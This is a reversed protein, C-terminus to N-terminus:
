LIRNKEQQEIELSFGNLLSTINKFILEKPTYGDKRGSGVISFGDPVDDDDQGVEEPKAKVQTKLPSLRGLVKLSIYRYPTREGESLRKVLVKIDKKDNRILYRFDDNTKKYAMLLRDASAKRDRALKPIYLTTRFSKLSSKAARQHILSVLRADTKIWAIIGGKSTIYYEDILLQQTNIHINKEVKDKIAKM